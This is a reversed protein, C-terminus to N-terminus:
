ENEGTGKWSFNQGEKKTQNSVNFKNGVYQCIAFILVM